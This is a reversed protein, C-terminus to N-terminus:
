KDDTSQPIILKDGTHLNDLKNYKELEEKTVKYKEMVKELTDNETFPYVHYTVYKEEENFGNFINLDNNNENENENEINIETKTEEMKEEKKDNLMEDLLDLRKDIPAETPEEIVKDDEIVPEIPTEENPTEEDSDLERLEEESFLDNTEPIEEGDIYLDINVKMKNSDILEYRFDDIDVVLTNLDYNCGLAIDFPLEFSFTEKKLEGETIKYEGTIYFVGSVAESSTKIDHELSIATIERVDTNFTLVNNFPVIKKM